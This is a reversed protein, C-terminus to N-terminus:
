TLYKKLKRVITSQDVELIEAMKYTSNYREKAKLLLQKEVEELAKKLPIMGIVEINQGNNSRKIFDPPLDDPQIISGRSVIVLREVLNELERINGPWQYELFIKKLDESIIKSTGYEHNFKELFRNTLPLIDERRKRLPPLELPVVSLRYYLDARFEGNNVMEDLDRNTAAIVRIDIDIPNTGGVRVIKKDQLVRLLKVQQSLPLEGVEDLFVTGTHAIELLGPKGQRKAGTFSGTEYGFLESEILNEPIAGCDIKVFPGKRRPGNQHIFRTIVDKGTGSEGLILLTSDIKSLKKAVEMVAQFEPSRMSLLHELNEDEVYIEGIGQSIRNEMDRLANLDRMNTIVKTVKGNEDVVPNGTALVEKGSKHKQMFTVPRGTKLALMTASPYVIGKRELEEVSSGILESASMHLMQELAPNVKILFGKADAVAIGDYSCDIIAQNERNLEKERELEEELTQTLQTKQSLLYPLCMDVEAIGQFVAIAKERCSPYGCAGCNLQDEPTYKGTRALVEQIDKETPQPLFANKNYFSAALDVHYRSIREKGEKKEEASIGNFFAIIDRRKSTISKSQGAMPGDICGNCMLLDLFKVNVDGNTVSSIVDICQKSGEAIIYKQSLLDEALNMCHLLGGPLPITYGMSACPSDPQTPQVADIDIKKRSFLEEAEEFTLAVNIIGSIDRRIIESKKAVCPGIFVLKIDPDSYASRFMKAAAIMPSVIPALNPVLSPYHMEILNVVAPCPTSIYFKSSLDLNRYAECMLEAGAAVEWVYDFGAAKLAGIYTDRPMDVVAPYSPAILAATKSGSRIIEEVMTVSDAVRKAGQNCIKLCSGCSICREAIVSAKGDVMRVAKVPCNRVCAYCAKCKDSDTTIVTNGM